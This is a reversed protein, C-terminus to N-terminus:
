KRFKSSLQTYYQQLRKLDDRNPVFLSYISLDFVRNAYYFTFISMATYGISSAIAAGVIGYLPILICYLGVSVCSGAIAAKSTLGIHGNGSLLKSLVKQTIFLITGPLLLLFPTSAGLFNEGYGYPLLVFVTV